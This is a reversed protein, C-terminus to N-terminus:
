IFSRVSEGGIVVRCCLFNCLLISRSTHTNSHTRTERGDEGRGGAGSSSFFFLLRPHRKDASVFAFFEGVGGRAIQLSAKSKGAPQITKQNEACNEAKNPAKLWQPPTETARARVSKKGGLKQLVGAFTWGESQQFLAQEVASVRAFTLQSRGWRGSDERSLNIQAETLM